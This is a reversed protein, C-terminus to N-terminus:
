KRPANRREGGDGDGVISEPSPALEGITREGSPNSSNNQQKMAESMTKLENALKPQITSLNKHSYPLNMATSTSVNSSKASYTLTITDGPKNSVSSSLSSKEVDSKKPSSFKSTENVNFTFVQPGKGSVLPSINSPTPNLKNGPGM